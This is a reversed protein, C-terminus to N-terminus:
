SILKAAPHSSFCNENLIQLNRSLFYFEIQESTTFVKTVYKRLKDMCYLVISHNYKRMFFFMSLGTVCLWRALALGLGSVWCYLSAYFHNM